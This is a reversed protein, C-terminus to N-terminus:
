DEHVQNSAAINNNMEVSAHADDFNIVFPAEDGSEATSEFDIILDHKEDVEDVTKDDFRSCGERRM